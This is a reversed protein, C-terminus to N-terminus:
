ISHLRENEWFGEFWSIWEQECGSHDAPNISAGIGAEQLTVLMEERVGQLGTCSSIIVPVKEAGGSKVKEAIWKAWDRGDRKPMDHDLLIGDIFNLNFFSDYSVIINEAASSDTTIIWSHGKKDMLSCFEDYRGPFDDIILFRM